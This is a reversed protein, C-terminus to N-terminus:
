VCGNSRVEDVCGGVTQEYKDVVEGREGDRERDGRGKDTQGYEADLLLCRSSMM